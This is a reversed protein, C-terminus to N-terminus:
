ACQRTGEHGRNQTREAVPDTKFVSDRGRTRTTKTDRTCNAQDKTDHTRHQWALTNSTPPGDRSGLTSHYVLRHAKFVLGGRFRKTNGRLLQVQPSFQVSRLRGVGSHQLHNTWKFSIAGFTWKHPVELRTSNRLHQCTNWPVSQFRDVGDKVKAHVEARPTQSKSSKHLSAKICIYIYIYIVQSREVQNGILGRIHSFWFSCDM